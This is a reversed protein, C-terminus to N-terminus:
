PWTRGDAIHNSLGGFAAGDPPVHDAKLLIIGPAADFEIAALPEGEAVM